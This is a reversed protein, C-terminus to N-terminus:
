LQCGVLVPEPELTVGFARQVGSRIERALDLLQATTGGGRHTLALTHKSSVAVPHDAGPYGRSFGAREILWAASTKTRGAPLSWAPVQGFGVARAELQSFRENSLVPNTFFSGVSWSDPDHPDLVMGKSARLKLVADRAASLGVREGVSVGLVRALEAYGIPVSADSRSLRFDTTLLVYRECHKFVSTRYGFGCEAAPITVVQDTHRDYARVSEVWGGIEQGYAGVNQVPTSGSFGPIGSLCELGSLGEDVARSCVEDWPEGASVRWVTRDPFERQEIGLNRILLVTGPFGADGIVVNSGGALVLLPGSTSRVGALIEAETQATIM